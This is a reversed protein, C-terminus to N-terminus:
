NHEELALRDEERMQQEAAVRRESTAAIPELLAKETARDAARLAVALESEEMIVHTPHVGGENNDQAGWM